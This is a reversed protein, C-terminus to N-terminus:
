HNAVFNVREYGKLIFSQKLRHSSKKNEKVSCVSLFLDPHGELELQSGSCHWLSLPLCSVATGRTPLPCRCSDLSCPANVSWGKSVATLETLQGWQQISEPIRCSGLTLPCNLFESLVQGHLLKGPKWPCFLGLCEDVM